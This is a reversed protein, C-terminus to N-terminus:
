RHYFCMMDTAAGVFWHLLLPWLISGTRLALAGFLLGAPVSALTEGAPKGIHVLCSIAVQFALAGAVGFRDRLGFLLAGRFYSEWGLYYVLYTLEWAVWTGANLGALKTLPYERQFEADYSNVWLIPTLVLALVLIAPLGFRWDGLRHGLERPRVGFGVRMVALPVVGLLVLAAGHYYLWPYWDSWPDGAFLQAFHARFFRASFFYLWAVVLMLTGFALFWTRGDLPRLVERLDRYLTRLFAM